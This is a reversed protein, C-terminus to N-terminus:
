TSQVEAWVVDSDVALRILGENLLLEEITDRAIQELSKGIHLAQIEWFRGEPRKMMMARSLTTDTGRM